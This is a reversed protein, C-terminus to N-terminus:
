LERLLAVYQIDTVSRLKYRIFILLVFHAKEKQIKAKDALIIFKNYMINLIKFSKFRTKDRPVVFAVYYICAAHIFIMFLALFIQM